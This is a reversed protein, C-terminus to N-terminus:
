CYTYSLILSECELIESDLWSSEELNRSGHHSVTSIQFCSDITTLE